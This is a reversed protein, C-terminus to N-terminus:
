CISVLVFGMFWVFEFMVVGVVVCVDVCWLVSVM